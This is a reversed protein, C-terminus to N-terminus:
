EKYEYPIEHHFAKVAKLLEDEDFDKVNKLLCFGVTTM